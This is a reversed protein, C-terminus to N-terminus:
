GENEPTIQNWYTIFDSRVAGNTIINGVFFPPLPPGSGGGGSVNGYCIHGNCHLWESLSGGGCSNNAWVGTNVTQAESQRTTGNVVIYDVQVDRGTADNTFAVTIAGNLNTSASYNQLSTTLTWTAVNVNDIRLSVSESGATGRARVVISNASNSVAGYGIAGNCHMWESNGGGGCSGNAYLGSNFSQAESQRTEGNVIVYDVQVDRGTADNTFAVTLGGALSTSASFSQFSTSLTWTAVNSNDVRLTISEAGTTGRARVVISSSGSQASAETVFGSLLLAVLAVAGTALIRATSRISKRVGGENGTEIFEM